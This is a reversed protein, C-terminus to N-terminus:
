LLSGGEFDPVRLSLIRCATVPFATANRTPGDPWGHRVALKHEADCDRVGERTHTGGDGPLATESTVRTGCGAMSFGGTATLELEWFPAT